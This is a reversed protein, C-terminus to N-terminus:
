DRGGTAGGRADLEDAWANVAAKLLRDEESIESAGGMPRPEWKDLYWSISRDELKGLAVGRNKGFHVVVDQWKMGAPLLPTGDADRPVVVKPQDPAASGAGAGRNDFGGDPVEEAPTTSLGNDMMVVVHAFASRCVRSIARTQAMARRAYEPRKAWNPEDDGVFGEATAIVVGTSMMRVEGVASYGGEVRKVDRAGACCGHATAIAQWGEVQVYKKKEITKATKAVIEKCVSAIDTAQRILEAPVIAAHETPPM